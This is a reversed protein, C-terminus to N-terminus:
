VGYAYRRRKFKGVDQNSPTTVSILNSLATETGASDVASVQFTYTTNPDLSLKDSNMTSTNWVAPITQGDWSGNVYLKYSAVGLTPSRQSANWRLEVYKPGYRYVALGSPATIDTTPPPTPTGGSLFLLLM